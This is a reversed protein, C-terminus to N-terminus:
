WFDAVDLFHGDALITVWKKGLNTFPVLIRFLRTISQHLLATM